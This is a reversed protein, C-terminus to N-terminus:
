DCLYALINGSQIILHFQISYGNSGQLDALHGSLTPETPPKKLIPIIALGMRQQMGTGKDPKLGLLKGNPRGLHALRKKDLAIRNYLAAEEVM